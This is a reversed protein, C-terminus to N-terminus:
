AKKGVAEAPDLTDGPKLDLLAKESGDMAFPVSGHEAQIRWERDIRRMCVTRRYWLDIWGDGLADIKRGSMKTLGYAFACDGSAHISWDPTQITVPGDWTDFWTKLGAPNRAAAGEVALPPALSYVTVDETLLATAAEANKDYIARVHRDLLDRIQQEVTM